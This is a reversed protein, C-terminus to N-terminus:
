KVFQYLSFLRMSRTMNEKNKTLTNTVTVQPRSDSDRYELALKIERWRHSRICDSVESSNQKSMVLM